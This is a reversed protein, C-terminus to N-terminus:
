SRGKARGIPKVSLHYSAVCSRRVRWVVRIVIRGAKRADRPPCPEGAGSARRRGAPGRVLPWVTARARSLPHLPRLGRAARLGDETQMLASKAGAAKVDVAM